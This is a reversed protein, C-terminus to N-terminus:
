ERHNPHKCEDWYSLILHLQEKMEGMTTRKMFFGQVQLDYVKELIGKGDSTSLFIFPISKRKLYPDTFIEERLTLGNMGPMNVDTIIIFPQEPTTRLYHLAAAGEKFFRLPNTIGLESIVEALIQQDEEDDDIIVLPQKTNQM